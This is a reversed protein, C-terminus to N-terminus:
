ASTSPPGLEAVCNDGDLFRTVGGERARRLALQILRPMESDLPGDANLQITQTEPVSM